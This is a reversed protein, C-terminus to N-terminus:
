RLRRTQIYLDLDENKGTVILDRIIKALVMSYVTGNDGYGYLFYSHPYEDYIGLIPMGDHTGGYFAGLYYEAEIEINPFLKNFEQVLQDRKNLIMSDRRDVFETTEDLGGFIVRDDHTTRMYFYPRATEWILTRNYWFEKLPQTVIAYSSTVAANKEKNIELNEYGAAYIIKKATISRQDTTFFHVTGDDEYKKRIVETHEYIRVGNAKAKELLGYNFALPNLEADNLSYIAAPARFPYHLGVKEENFFEVQFGHKKLLQFEKEIKEVDDSSSAFYLSDRRMFHCDTPLKKAAVEIENIAKQCLKLHRTSREEGFTQCLEFFMKDGSYQILATNTTTSGSGIERKDVVIIDLDGESLYYACQAGSSGGGIILVDCTVDEELRPYSPKNTITTPWYFKGSQLDM